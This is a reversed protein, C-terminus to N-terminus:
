SGQAKRKEELSVRMKELASKEIQCIRVRTVGQKDAIGQLTSRESGDIPYRAMIVGRERENLLSLLEAVERSRSRDSLIQLPTLSLPDPLSEGVSEEANESKPADLSVVNTIRAIGRLKVVDEVKVKMAAALEEETAERGLENRLTDELSHLTRIKKSQGDSIRIMRRRADNAKKIHRKIIRGAYTSFKWKTPDFGDVAKVLGVNGVAICDILPMSPNPSQRAFLCVLRLNSKIMTDRARNSWKGGKRMIRALAAMKKPSVMSYKAIDKLYRRLDSENFSDTFSMVNDPLRLVPLSVRQYCFGAGRRVDAQFDIAGNPFCQM